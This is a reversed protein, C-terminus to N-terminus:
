RFSTDLKLPSCYLTVTGCTRRLPATEQAFTTNPTSPLLLAFAACVVATFFLPAYVRRNIADLNRSESDFM